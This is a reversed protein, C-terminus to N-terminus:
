LDHPISERADLVDQLRKSPEFEWPDVEPPQEPLDMADVTIEEAATGIETLLGTDLLDAQDFNFPLSLDDYADALGTYPGIQRQHWIEGYANEVTDLPLLRQVWANTRLQYQMHAQEPTVNTADTREVAAKARHWERRYYQMHNWMAVDVM